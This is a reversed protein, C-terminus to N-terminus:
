HCEEGVEMANRYIDQWSILFIMVGVMVVTMVSTYTFLIHPASIHFHEDVSMRAMPYMMYYIYYGAFLCSFFNWPSLWVDTEFFRVFALIGGLPILGFVVVMNPIELWNLLSGAGTNSWNGDKGTIAWQTAELVAILNAFAYSFWTQNSRFLDQNQVAASAINSLMTRVIQFIVFSMLKSADTLNIPPRGTYLYFTVIIISFLASFSGFPNILSDIWFVSKMLAKFGSPPRLGPRVQYNAEHQIRWQEDILDVHQVQFFLKRFLLQLSGKSWRKRQAMSSAVDEPVAGVALRIPVECDPYDKRLYCSDWGLSTIMNGTISDETQSGYQIGCVQDLAHRRFLCNTGAFLVGGFADRGHQVAFYFMANRHGCPDGMDKLQKHSEDFHQPTQVYAINTDDSYAFYKPGKVTKYFLPLCACLFLPHPQMDNDLIMLYKGSAGENYLINNINGAKSHHEPPKRRGCFTVRLGSKFRYCDRLSGIACDLRKKNDKGDHFTNITELVGEEGENLWFDIIDNNKKKKEDTDEAADMDKVEMGHLECYMFKAITNRLNVKDKIRYETKFVSPKADREFFGDDAIYIHLKDKPYDMEMCARLTERTVDAPESYHCIIVDVDPWQDRSLGKTELDTLMLADRRIMKWYNVNHVLLVFYSLLEALIFLVYMAWQSSTVSSMCIDEEADWTCGVQECTYRSDVCHFPCGQELPQLHGILHYLWIIGCVAFTVYLVQFLSSLPLITLKQFEDDQFTVNYREQGHGRGGVFSRGGDPTNEAYTTVDGNFRKLSDQKQQTEGKKESVILPDIRTLTVQDRGSYSKKIHNADSFQMIDNTSSSMTTEKSNESGNPSSFSISQPSDTLHSERISNNNNIALLTDGFNTVVQNTSDRKYRFLFLSMLIGFFLLLGFGVLIFVSFDSSFKSNLHTLNVLLDTKIRFMSLFSYVVSFTATCIISWQFVMEDKYQFYTVLLILCLLTLESWVYIQVNLSKLAFSIAVLPVLMILTTACFNYMDVFFNSKAFKKDDDNQDNEAVIDSSSSIDGEQLNNHHDQQHSTDNNLTQRRRRDNEITDRIMTMDLVHQSMQNKIRMRLNPILISFVIITVMILSQEEQILVNSKVSLFWTLALSLFVWSCLSTIVQIAVDMVFELFTGSTIRFKAVMLSEYYWHAWFVFALPFLQILPSFVYFWFSNESIDEMDALFVEEQKNGEEPQLAQLMLISVFEHITRSYIVNIIAAFIGTIFIAKGWLRLKIYKESGLQYRSAWLFIGMLGSLFTLVTVEYTYAVSLHM